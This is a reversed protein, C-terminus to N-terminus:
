PKTEKKKKYFARLSDTGTMIEREGDKSKLVVMRGVIKTIVYDEDDLVSKLEDGKRIKM